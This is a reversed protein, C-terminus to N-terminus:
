EGGTIAKFLDDRNEVVWKTALAHAVMANKPPNDSKQIHNMREQVAAEFVDAPTGPAPRSSGLPHYLMKGAEKSVANAQKLAKLIPKRAESPLGELSKLIEAGEEPTALESFESKAIDVYDKKRLVATQKQLDKRLKKNDEVIPAIATKVIDLIDAKSVTAQAGGAGARAAGAPKAKKMKVGKMSKFILFKKGNAAKGVMSVEDLELNFLDNRDDTPM